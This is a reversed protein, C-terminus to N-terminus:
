RGGLVHYTLALTELSLCIISIAFAWSIRNIRNANSRYYADLHLALDRLMLDPSLPRVGDVYLIHLRTTGFHFSWSRRPWLVYASASM